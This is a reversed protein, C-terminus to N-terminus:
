GRDRSAPFSRLHVVPDHEAVVIQALREHADGVLDDLLVGIGFRDRQDADV